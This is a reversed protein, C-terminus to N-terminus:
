PLNAFMNGFCVYSNRGIHNLHLAGHSMFVARDKQFQHIDLHDLHKYERHTTKYYDHDHINMESGGLIPSLNLKRLIDDHIDHTSKRRPTKHHSLIIDHWSERRSSPMKFHIGLSQWASLATLESRLYDLKDRHNTRRLHFECMALLSPKNINEACCSWKYHNETEKDDDTWAFQCLVFCFLVTYGTEVNCNGNILLSWRAQLSQQKWHAFAYISFDSWQGSYPIVHLRLRPRLEIIVAAKQVM